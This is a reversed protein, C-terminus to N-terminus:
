MLVDHLCILFLYSIASSYLCVSFSYWIVVVGQQLLIRLTAKSCFIVLIVVSMHQHMSCYQMWVFKDFAVLHSM